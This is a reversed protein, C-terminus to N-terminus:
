SAHPRPRHRRLPMGEVGLRWLAGVVRSRWWCASWSRWSSARAAALAGLSGHVRGPPRPAVGNFLAGERAGDFGTSGIGILLLAATGPGPRLRAAGVFPPRLVLRGDERARRDARAARVARVLRRLRRRPADVARRRLRGDRRAPRRPLRADARRAARARPRRAWCLECISSRSCARGRGALPGLRDPYPLPETAEGRSLRGGVWGAARGIARWPSLLRFVDGLLLSLSRSASGSASTSPPRRSTPRSPTRARSRRRLGHRRLRRRRARRAAVEVALPIRFLAGSPCASWGRARGAPRRARRVLRRARGRRRRRVAGRPDPPRRPRRHRPRHRARRALRPVVVPGAPAPGGHRADAEPRPPRSSAATRATRPRSRRPRRRTRTTM